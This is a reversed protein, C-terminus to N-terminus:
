FFHDNEYENSKQNAIKIILSIFIILVSPKISYDLTKDKKKGAKIEMFTRFCNNDDHYQFFKKIRKYYFNKLVCKNKIESIITKITCQIDYCVQGFGDNKYDFYGKSFHRNRYEEYDFQTYIIPKQLYGFDFFISSYDTILLSAKAFLDQKNCQKKIKFRNNENFYRYQSAFNPHLCFIGTYDNQIMVDLIQQNNILNNYFNFYTTNIFSESEISKLTILDRTGKIYSRWTPYIIIIKECQIRNHIEILNDFRPLGTLALNNKEYGYNINLLSNYERKSSTIILDFNKKKKNLHWSLDDKIIGNKLYIYEFIYLNIMYKGDIGFANDVWPESVSSIIKDTELFKNLYQSSNFDIVNEFNKLREFDPCNKDLVFYFIIEKPKIKKLYRFFYEGNDGAQDKRDNILWIQKRKVFKNKIRFEISKKRFDILYEKNYSILESCYELEFINVLNDDYKYISINNNNKKVIYKEKTYYSNELSPIHTKSSFSTSIQIEKDNYSIYFLLQKEDNIDLSIDFSIIRGKHICGFMTVYDFGSYFSYTPFFIKNGLKCYYYFKDRPLWIRDEGELHLVNGKIDLIIWSIVDNKSKLNILSYNSYIFLNNNLNIENRLDKKYKISLAFIQLKSPFIKQELIYKDEIQKLLNEIVSCYEKYSKYDLFRFSLSKIRFLIEYAIYFQVFPLIKNYLLISLNILYQQVLNITSFYFKKNKENNQMSSSSDSRKRYYYIAEKLLALIPKILLLNFIFKVDEGSIVREDFKKGKILSYRFFSSSTSLQICHYDHNLNVIRTSNFKYDLFHYNNISEFYKIRGGIIDVNKKTKYFLYVNKFTNPSWKDDSDLFNVFIGKVHKLGINRAASVGSHPIRIYIINKEYKEKYKLCINESNDTSGDNVLIIQINKFGITQNLLSGISDDLYRGTNFISIIVSFIYCKSIHFISLWIILIDIKM